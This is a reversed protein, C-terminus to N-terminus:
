SKVNLFPPYVDAEDACLSKDNSTSSKDKGKNDNQFRIRGELHHILPSHEKVYVRVADKISLGQTYDMKNESIMKYGDGGRALFNPVLVKYIEDVELPVYRPVLCQSCLVYVRLVRQGKPQNIDVIVRLGSVQLFRGHPRKADYNAVSHELAEIIHQGQLTMMDVTNEYPLVRGMDDTHISGVQMSARISGANILAVSAETWKENTAPTMSGMVMADTVLNGISCEMLRCSERNGDLLVQSKGLHLPEGRFAREWERIDEATGPDEPATKGLLIPNGSWDKLNGFMDFTVDLRGLYKGYGTTQAILVTQDTEGSVETEPYPGEPVETSPPNGNYLFSGQSGGVVVDVGPVRVAVRKSMTLSGTGLIIIKNVGMKQLKIIEEEMAELADTFKISGIDANVTGEGYTYGVVGINAGGVNVVASSVLEKELDPEETADINSSLLPFPLQKIYDVIGDPTLDFEKYGLAMADYRTRNMFHVSIKERYEAFWSTAEFQNGGDLLIVNGGEARIEEIAGALRSIGGFCEGRAIEARTCEDGKADVQGYRSRFEATHLITLRFSGLSFVSLPLAILILLICTKMPGYSNMMLDM